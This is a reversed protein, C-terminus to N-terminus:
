HTPSAPLLETVVTALTEGILTWGAEHNDRSEKSPLGTHRLTLETQGSGDDAFHLTVVSETENFPNNWTFALIKHRDITKYVGRHPLERDGAKMLILYEGGERPDSEVLPVTMGEMPTMFKALADPDLWADFVFEPPAPITKVLTIEFANM